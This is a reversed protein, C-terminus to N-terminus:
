MNTYEVNAHMDGHQTVGHEGVDCKLKCCHLIVFLWKWFGFHCIVLLLLFCVFITEQGIEIANM